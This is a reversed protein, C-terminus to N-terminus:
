QLVSPIEFALYEGTNRNLDTGKWLVFYLVVPTIMSDM